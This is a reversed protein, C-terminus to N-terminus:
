PVLAGAELEQPVCNEPPGPPSLALQMCYYGVQQYARIPGGCIAREESTNGPNMAWSLWRDGIGPGLCESLLLSTPGPLKSACGLSHGPDQQVHVDCREQGPLLQSRPLHLGAHRSRGPYCQVLEALYEGCSSQSGLLLAQVVVPIKFGYQCGHKGPTPSWLCTGDGWLRTGWRWM